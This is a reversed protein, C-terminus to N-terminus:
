LYVKRLVFVLVTFDFKRVIIEVIQVQSLHLPWWKGEVPAFMSQQGM